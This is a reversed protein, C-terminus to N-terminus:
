QKGASCTPPMGNRKSSWRPIVRSRHPRSSPPSSRRNRCDPSLAAPSGRRSGRVCCAVDDAANLRLSHMKERQECGTGLWGVTAAVIVFLAFDVVDRVGDIAPRGVPERLLVNDGLSAVIASLIAPGRGALIALGVVLLVMLHEFIFAPVALQVALLITTLRLATALFYRSV